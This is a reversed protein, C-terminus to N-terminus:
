KIINSTDLITLPTGDPMISSGALWPQDIFDIDKIVFDEIETIEDVVVGAKEKGIYVVVIKRDKEREDLDKEFFKDRLDVMPIESDEYIFVRSGEMTRVNGEYMNKIREVTNIPIGYRRDGVEIVFCKVIALSIPLEIEIKTGEGRESEISYTGQLREATTRVVSMGVGRGSLETVEDNTSLNPNFLLEMAEQRSMEEAEAETIIENDIAKEKVKETDIGEGDDEVGITAKDGQREAKLTINGEASKGNEKRKEPKQIGHDVANRLMHIVPEDIEDLVTRDLRLDTGEMEFDIEKDTKSSLDRVMRPFRDFVQSVPVMRAHTLDQQIEDGLRKFQNMAEEVERNDFPSLEQRLKKQIIMLEGVANMLSDLNEAEVQIKDVELNEEEDDDHSEVMEFEEGKSAKKLAEILESIDKDPQEGEEEVNEIFEELKDIGIYLLDFLKDDGEIEDDRLADYVDEMKHSLESTTDFGMSGASSKITHTARFLENLADEDGDQEFDVMNDNLKQLNENAEDLFADLFEEDPM